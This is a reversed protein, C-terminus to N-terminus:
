LEARPGSPPCFQVKGSRARERVCCGIQRTQAGRRKILHRVVLWFISAIQEHILGQSIKLIASLHTRLNLGVLVMQQVVMNNARHPLVIGFGETWM